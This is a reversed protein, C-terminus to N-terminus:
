NKRGLQYYQRCKLLEHLGRHLWPMEKETGKEKSLLDMFFTNNEALSCTLHCFLPCVSPVVTIIVVCLLLLAVTVSYNAQSLQTWFVLTKGAIACTTCRMTNINKSERLGLREYWNQLLALTDSSCKSSSNPFQIRIAELSCVHFLFPDQWLSKAVLFGASGSSYYYKRTNDPTLEQAM